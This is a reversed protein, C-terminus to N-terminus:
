RHARPSLMDEGVLLSRHPEHTRVMSSALRAWLTWAVQARRGCRHEAGAAGAHISMPELRAAWLTAPAGNSGMTRHVPVSNSHGAGTRRQAAPRPADLEM